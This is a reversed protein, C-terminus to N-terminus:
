EKKEWQDWNCTLGGKYSIPNAWRICTMGQIEVTQYSFTDQSITKKAGYFPSGLLLVFLIILGTGLIGAQIKIKTKKNM